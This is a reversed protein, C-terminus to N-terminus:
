SRELIAFRVDHEDVHADLLMDDLAAAADADLYLRVGEGEVVRDDDAPQAVLEVELSGSSELETFIRVDRPRPSRALKRLAMVTRDTMELM